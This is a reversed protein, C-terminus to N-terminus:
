KEESEVTVNHIVVGALAARSLPGDATLVTAGCADAAALYLADYATANHRYQWARRVLDRHRLREIEWALLDDIAEQARDADLRGGLVLKRLVALVEADLLEPAFLAADDIAPAVHEGTPTCLLVEVAASADIVFNM